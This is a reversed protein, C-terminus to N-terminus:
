FRTTPNHIAGGEDGKLGIIFGSRPNENVQAHCGGSNIFEPIHYLCYKLIIMCAFLMLDIKRFCLGCWDLQGKPYEFNLTLRYVIAM